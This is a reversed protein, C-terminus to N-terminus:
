GMMVTDGLPGMVIILYPVLSGVLITERNCLKVYGVNSYFRSFVYMYYSTM